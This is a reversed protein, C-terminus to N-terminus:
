FSSTSAANSLDQWFRKHDIMVSQDLLMLIEPIPKLV